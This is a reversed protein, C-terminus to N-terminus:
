RWRKMGFYYHGGRESKKWHLAWFLHNRRLAEIIEENGSWGATSLGLEDGSLEFYGDEAYRWLGRIFEILGQADSVDWKAIRELEEETPYM